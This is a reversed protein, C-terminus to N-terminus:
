TGRRSRRPPPPRAPLLPGRPAPPAVSGPPISRQKEEQESYFPGLDEKTPAYRVKLVAFAKELKDGRDRAMEDLSRTKFYELITEVAADIESEVHPMWPVALPIQDGRLSRLRMQTGSRGPKTYNEVPEALSQGEERIPHDSWCLNHDFRLLKMSGKPDGNGGELETPILACWDWDPHDDRGRPKWFVNHHVSHGHGQAVMGCIGAATFNGAITLRKPDHWGHIAFGDGGVIINGICFLDQSTPPPGGSFYIPHGLWGEGMGILRCDRILVNKATNGALMQFKRGFFTCGVIQVGERGFAVMNGGRDEARGGFWLGEVRVFNQFLIRPLTGDPGTVLARGTGSPAFRFVTPHELDPGAPGFTFERCEYLGPPILRTEGPRVGHAVKEFPIRPVPRPGSAQASAPNAALLLLLSSILFQKETTVLPSYERNPPLALSPSFHPGERGDLGPQVSRSFQVVGILPDPIKVVWRAAPKTYSALRRGLLSTALHGAGHVVTPELHGHLRDAAIGDSFRCSASGPTDFDLQQWAARGLASLSPNRLCRTM